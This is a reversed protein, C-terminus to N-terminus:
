TACGRASWSRGAKGDWSRRCAAPGRLTLRIQRPVQALDDDSVDDFLCLKALLQRDIQPVFQTSPGGAPPMGILYPMTQPPEQRAPGRM